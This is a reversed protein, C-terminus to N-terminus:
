ANGVHIQIRPVAENVLTAVQLQDIKANSLPEALDVWM